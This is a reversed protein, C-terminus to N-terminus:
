GNELPAACIGVVSSVALVIGLGSAPVQRRVMTLPLVSLLAFYCTAYLCALVTLRLLRSDVVRPRTRERADPRGRMAIGAWGYAPHYM